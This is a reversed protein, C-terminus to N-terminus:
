SSIQYLVIFFDLQIQGRIINCFNILPKPARELHEDQWATFHFQNTVHWNAVGEPLVELRRKILGPVEAVEDESLMKSFANDCKMQQGLASPWYKECTNLGEGSFICYLTKSDNSSLAAQSYCGARAQWIAWDRLKTRM